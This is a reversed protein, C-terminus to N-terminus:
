FVNDHINRQWVSPWIHPVGLKQINKETRHDWNEGPLKRIVIPGVPKTKSKSLKVPGANNSIFLTTPGTTVLTQNARCFNLKQGLVSINENWHSRGSSIMTM